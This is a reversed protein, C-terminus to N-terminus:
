APAQRSRPSSGRRRHDLMGRIKAALTRFAFPKRLLATGPELVASGSLVDDPYGSIYLVLLDPQNSRLQRALDAGNLKPLMVDTILLDIPQGHASLVELADSGNEASLVTYGSAELTEVMLDRVDVMDEVVCLTEAGGPVVLPNDPRISARRDDAHPLCITFTSGCGVASEVGIYGRSQAVVGHVMALGLRTGRGREKTTYFPEFLRTLTDEDMGEGTDSVTLMVNRGMTAGPQRQCFAEDLDVNRVAVSLTGGSPMADRANAALNLIAQMLQDPDIEVLHLHPESTVSVEIQEGVLSPLFVRLEALFDTLDLVHPEFSQGRSFALLQKTLAAGRVAAQQISEASQYEGSGADLLETLRESEGGIVMLLNNFDHAVGGALRGVVELKEAQQVRAELRKRDTIDRCVMVRGAPEGASDRLLSIDAAVVKSGAGTGLALEAHARDQGFTEPSLDPQRGVVERIPLGMLARAPQEFLRTAALNVDVVRTDMDLVVLADTMRELVLDRAIPILDVLQFRLIGYAIAVSSLAFAFPTLRLSPGM